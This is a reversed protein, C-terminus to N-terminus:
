IEYFWKNIVLMGWWLLPISEVWFSSYYKKQNVTTFFVALFTIISICFLILFHNWMFDDKFFELGFFLLLLFGAMVKTIKIGLLQPITKLSIADNNIDRIEFPLLLVLVFLFVQIFVLYVDFGIVMETHKVPLLVTCGTWVLAVIFAKLGSLSRFNKSKPLIPMMYLLAVLFLGVLYGYAAINLQLFFHFAGITALANVVIINKSVLTGYKIINYYLVTAFFLFLAVTTADISFIFSNVKVLAFVALAVHLSADIYFDLLRKFILVQM